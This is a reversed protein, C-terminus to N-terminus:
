NLREGRQAAAMADKMEGISEAIRKATEDAVAEGVATCADCECGDMRTFVYDMAGLVIGCAVSATHEHKLAWAVIKSMMPSVIQFAEQWQEGTIEVKQVKVEM